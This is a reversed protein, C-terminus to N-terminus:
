FIIFISCRPMKKADIKPCWVYVVHLGRAFFSAFSAVRDNKRGKKGKTRKYVVRIAGGRIIKEIRRSAEQETLNTRENTAREYTHPLSPSSTNDCLM